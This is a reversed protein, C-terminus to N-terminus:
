WRATTCARARITCTSRSWRSTSTTSGACTRRRRCRTASASTSVPATASTDLDVTECSRVGAVTTFNRSTRITSRAIRASRTIATSTTAAAARTSTRCRTTRAPSTRPRLEPALRCRPATPATIPTGDPNEGDFGDVNVRPMVVVTLKSRAFRPKSDLQEVLTRVLNVASDSTEMEDGHQQAIILVATPGNGIVVYPVEADLTARGPRTSCSPRARARTCRARSRRCWSRTAACRRPATTTATRVTQFRSSTAAVARVAGPGRDGPLRSPAAHAIKSKKM